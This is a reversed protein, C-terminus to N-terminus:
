WLQIARQVRADGTVAVQQVKLTASLKANTM